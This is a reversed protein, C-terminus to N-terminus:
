REDQISGSYLVQIECDNLARNYIFIDDIKGNFFRHNLLRGVGIASGYFGYDMTSHINGPFDITKLSEGNFYYRISTSTITVAAFYWEM